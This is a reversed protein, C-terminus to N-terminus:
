SSGGDGSAKRRYEGGLKKVDLQYISIQCVTHQLVLFFGFLCSSLM